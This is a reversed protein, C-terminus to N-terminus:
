AAPQYDTCYTGAVTSCWAAGSSRHGAMVWVASGRVEDVTLM